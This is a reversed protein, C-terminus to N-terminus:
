KKFENFLNHTTYILSREKVNVTKNPSVM